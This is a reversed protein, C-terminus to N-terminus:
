FGRKAGAKFVPKARAELKWNITVYGDWWLRLASHYVPHYLFRWVKRLTTPTQDAGIQKMMLLLKWDDRERRTKGGM